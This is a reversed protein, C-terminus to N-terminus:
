STSPLMHQSYSAIFLVAIVTLMFTMAVSLIMEYQPAMRWNWSNSFMDTLAVMDRFRAEIIHNSKSAVVSNGRHLSTTMSSFSSHAKFMRIILANWHMSRPLNTDDM